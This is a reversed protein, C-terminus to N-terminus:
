RLDPDTFGTVEASIKPCSEESLDFRPRELRLKVTTGREAALSMAKQFYDESRSASGIGDVSHAYLTRGKTLVASIGKPCKFAVIQRPGRGDDLYQILSLNGSVVLELTGGSTGIIAVTGELYYAVGEGKAGAVSALLSLSLLAAAVSFTLNRRRSNM